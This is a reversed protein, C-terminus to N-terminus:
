NYYRILLETAMTKLRSSLVKKESGQQIIKDPYEEIIMQLSEKSLKEGNNKLVEECTYRDKLIRKEFCKNLLDRPFNPNSFPITAGSNKRVIEALTWAPMHPNKDFEVHQLFIKSNKCINELTEKIEPAHNCALSLFIAVKKKEDGQELALKYITKLVEEEDSSKAIEYIADTSIRELDISILKM